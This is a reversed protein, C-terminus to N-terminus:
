HNELELAKTIQCWEQGRMYPDVLYYMGELLIEDKPYETTLKKWTSKELYHLLGEPRSALIIQKTTM